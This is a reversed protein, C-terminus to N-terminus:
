NLVISNKQDDPDKQVGQNKCFLMKQFSKEEQNIIKPCNILAIM